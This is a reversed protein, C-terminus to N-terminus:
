LLVKFADVNIIPAVLHHDTIFTVYTVTVAQVTYITSFMSYIIYLANKHPFISLSSEISAIWEGEIIELPVALM